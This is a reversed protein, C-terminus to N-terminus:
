GRNQSAFPLYRTGRRNKSEPKSTAIQTRLVLPRSQHKLQKFEVITLEFMFDVPFRKITRRVAEKLRKTEIGYLMSLDSDLIVKEGRIFYICEAILDIKVNQENM